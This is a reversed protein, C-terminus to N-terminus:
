RQAKLQRRLEADSKLALGAAVLRDEHSPATAKLDDLRRRLEDATFETGYQKILMFMGVLLFFRLIDGVFLLAMCFHQTNAALKEYPWTLEGHKADVFTVSSTADDFVTAHHLESNRVHSLTLVNPLLGPLAAAVGDLVDKPESRLSPLVKTLLDREDKGREVQYAVALPLAVVKSAEFQEAIARAHNLPGGFTNKDLGRKWAQSQALFPRGFFDRHVAYALDPADSLLKLLLERGRAYFEEIQPDSYVGEAVLLKVRDDRTSLRPEIPPFADRSQRM